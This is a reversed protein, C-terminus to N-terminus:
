NKLSTHDHVIVWRGDIRRFILSFNGGVPSPNRDLHWRGLMLAAADGLPTVELGNFTLQGMRERTPYRRKYNAKTMQWGRTTHGGSSFALQESKWYHEMFADIDGRNWAAAQETLIAELKDSLEDSPSAPRIRSDQRITWTQTENAVPITVSARFGNATSVLQPNLKLVNQDLGLEALTQTWRGHQQQFAQEHYYVDMLADRARRKPDPQFQVTGPPSTSFQVYGWREPRHMDVIGVPSWVWNDEHTNPIRQDKGAVIQHPWEVRSFDVRWQDGNRPPAPRHSFERLVAWPIAIEVTWGTDRDSADNLTGNVQVATKLGPIEWSNDANGGDKYPQSLFLDWSTNLANIEFEYYEHNDGDPDIFLEFDNDNFIVADHKTLTAWVHPEELEAAVYFYDADWLMKARTRFKPKPRQTGEIDVFDDTWAAHQWAPEDLHGDIKLPHDARYCVYGRPVIAKMRAWDGTWDKPADGRAACAALLLALTLVLLKWHSILRRSSMLDNM